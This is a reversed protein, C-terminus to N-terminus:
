RDHEKEILGKSKGGCKKAADKVMDDISKKPISVGKEGLRKELVEYLKKDQCRSILIDQFEKEMAYKEPLYRVDNPIWKGVECWKLAVDRDDLLWKARDIHLSPCCEVFRCVFEKKLVDKLPGEFDFLAHTPILDPLHEHFRRGEKEEFAELIIERDGQLNEDLERYFCGSLKLAELAFDKDKAFYKPYEFWAKGDGAKLVALAFERDKQLEEKAFNLYNYGTRKAVELIYDKDDRLCILKNVDETLDADPNEKLKLVATGLYDGVAKSDFNTFHLERPLADKAEM